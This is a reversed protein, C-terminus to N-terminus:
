TYIWISVNKLIFILFLIWHIQFLIIAITIGLLIGFSKIILNKSFIGFCIFIVYIFVLLSLLTINDRERLDLFAYNYSIEGPPLIEIYFDNSITCNQYDCITLNCYTKNIINAYYYINFRYNDLITVNIINCSTNITINDNNVDYYYNTYNIATNIYQVFNPISYNFIPPSNYIITQEEGITIFIEQNM